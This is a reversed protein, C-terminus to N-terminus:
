DPRVRWNWIAIKRWWIVFSQSNLSRNRFSVCLVLFRMYIKRSLKNLTIKNKRRTESRTTTETHICLELAIYNKEKEDGDEDEDEDDDFNGYNQVWCLVVRRLAISNMENELLALFCYLVFIFLRCARSHHHHTSHHLLISFYSIYLSM